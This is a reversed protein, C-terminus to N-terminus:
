AAGQCAVMECSAQTLKRQRALLEYMLLRIDADAFQGVGLPGLDLM